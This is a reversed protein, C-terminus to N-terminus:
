QAAFNQKYVSVFISVTLFNAVKKLFYRIERAFSRLIIFLQFAFNESYKRFLYTIM